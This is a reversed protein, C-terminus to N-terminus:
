GDGAGDASTEDVETAPDVAQDVSPLDVHPVGGPGHVDGRDAPGATCSGATGNNGERTSVGGASSEDGVREVTMTRTHALWKRVTEFTAALGEQVEVAQGGKVAIVKVAFILAGAREDDVWVRPTVTWQRSCETCAIVEPEDNEHGTLVTFDHEHESM